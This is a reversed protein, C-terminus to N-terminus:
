ATKELVELAVQKYQGDSSELKAIENKSFWGYRDHEESLTIKEENTECRFILLLLGIHPEIDTKLIFTGVIKGISFERIGAKELVKARLAEQVDEGERIRGGPFDWYMRGQWQGRTNRLFLARENKIFLAKVGVYFKKKEGM